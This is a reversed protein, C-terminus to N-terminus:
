KFFLGNIYYKILILSEIIKFSKQKKIRQYLLKSIFVLSALYGRIKSNFLISNRRIILSVTNRLGYKMKIDNVNLDLFPDTENSASYHIARSKKILFGKFGNEIIRFTFDVDDGWIFYRKDPFGVKDLINKRFLVSGFSSSIIELNDCEIFSEVIRKEIPLYPINISCLRGDIYFIVSSLFGVSLNNSVDSIILMQLSNLDPIVDTDICWIWDYGKDYATKIGTYQGGASGSNEQTIVTLDSQNILWEETGDTSNNNVIIIEDPERTQNRLSNICEKLLELRNYTVVVAAIKQENNKKM